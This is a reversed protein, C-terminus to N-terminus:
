DMENSDCKYKEYLKDFKKECIKRDKSNLGCLKFRLDTTCNIREGMYRYFFTVVIVGNHLAFNYKMPGDYNYDTPDEVMDEIINVLDIVNDTFYYEYKCSDICDNFFMNKEMTMFYCLDSEVDMIKCFNKTNIFKDALEKANYITVKGEYKKKDNKDNPYMIDTYSPTDNSNSMELYKHIMYLLKTM